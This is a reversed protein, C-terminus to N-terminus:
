FQEHEVARAALLCPGLDLFPGGGLASDPQEDSWVRSPPKQDSVSILILLRDEIGIEGEPILQVARARSVIGVLRGNRSTICIEGSNEDTARRAGTGSKGKIVRM